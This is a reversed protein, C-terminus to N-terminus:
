GLFVLALGVCVDPFNVEFDVVRHDNYDGYTINEWVFHPLDEDRNKRYASTWKSFVDGNPSTSLYVHMDLSLGLPWYPEAQTPPLSWPDVTAQPVPESSADKVDLGPAAPKSNFFKIAPSWFCSSPDTKLFRTFNFWSM